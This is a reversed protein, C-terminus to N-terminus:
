SRASATCASWFRSWNFATACSRCVSPFGTPATSATSAVTAVLLGVCLSILSNVMSKGALAVVTTLGFFVAAFYDPSDFKLAVEGMPGAAGGHGGLLGARRDARRGVGLRASKRARRAAGHHLRGVADARGDTRRSHPLPNGFLGAYTGSFYIATLLIVAPEIEMRYTFPLALVVGMVLGLGPMISVAMGVVLGIFLMLLEFPQFVQVFGHALNILAM